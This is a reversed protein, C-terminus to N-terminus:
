RATSEVPAVMSKRSDACRSAPKDISWGAAKFAGYGAKPRIRAEHVYKAFKNFDELSFGTPTVTVEVSMM